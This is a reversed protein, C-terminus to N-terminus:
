LPCLLLCIFYECIIETKEENLKEGIDTAINDEPDTASVILDQLILPEKKSHSTHHSNVRNGLRLKVNSRDMNRRKNSTRDNEENNKFVKKSYNDDLRYKITYDYSEIGLSRKKTVDCGVM